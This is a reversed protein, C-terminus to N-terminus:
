VSPATHNFTVTLRTGKAPASDIAVRAGMERARAAINALGSGTGTAAAPDFGQGDDAVCLVAQGGQPQLSIRVQSAGSHRLANSVCERVIQLAHMEEPATLQQATNESIQLEIRLPHLSQLTDALTRLAQAFQPRPSGDPELGHIFSRVERITQNLSALAASLRQEAAAPDHRLTHRASELSLGAAYIAQIISDHLDRALRTRLETSRRLGEESTRLAAEARKREEVESQLATRSTFSAETLRALRGFEDLKERLPALPAPSNETLSQELRRLPRVVWQSVAVLTFVTVVLGFVSFVAMEYANSEILRVLAAPHHHLQLIRVPRGDWGPFERHLHISLPDAPPTPASLPLLAVESEMLESLTQLHSAGWLRAVLLWGRPIDDRAINASPQVPAARVELLGGATEVFFHGFREEQLRPLLSAIPVPPTQLGSDPQRAVGYVLHGDPHLVWAADANFNPLSADINVAAWSRDGSAVFGVMDDWLSYDSAFNKLSLGTLGLLRDLLQARDQRQEAFMRATERVQLRRLTWAGAAFTLLLTGLLLALRTRTNM